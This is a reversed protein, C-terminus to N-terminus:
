LYFCFNLMGNARHTKSFLSKEFAQQEKATPWEESYYQSLVRKGESDLVLVAKIAYL